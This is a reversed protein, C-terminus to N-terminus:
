QQRAIHRKSRKTAQVVLFVGVLLGTIALLTCGFTGWWYQDLALLAHTKRGSRVALLGCAWSFCLLAWGRGIAPKKKAVVLLIWGAVVFPVAAIALTKM